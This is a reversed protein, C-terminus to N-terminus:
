RIPLVRTTTWVDEVCACEADIPHHDPCDFSYINFRSPLRFRERARDDLRADADVEQAIPAALGQRWVFLARPGEKGQWTRLKNGCAPCKVDDTPQYWDFMGM